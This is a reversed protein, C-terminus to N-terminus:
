PQAIAEEILGLNGFQPAWLRRLNPNSVSEILWQGTVLDHVAIDIVPSGGFNEVFVEERDARTGLGRPGQAVDFRQGNSLGLFWDGTALDHILLDTMGDGTIDRAYVRERAPGRNGFGSIWQEVRFFPFFPGGPSRGGALGVFWNGTVVDHIAVDTRGDGNFDGVFTAERDPRNGFNTAWLEPVFSSGTSRGVFWTGTFRDHVAVDARGDGTFDGGVVEERDLGLNGFHTAWRQIEFGTGTSVGIYWDGTVTDHIAIDDKGDGTFDGVLVREREYGLNGFNMAWRSISFTTGTSLGVWWDGTTRDHLAVDVKGDGDFDGVFTRERSDGLNGFGQAYRQLAFATGTSFGVVWEGSPRDHIIADARGDGDLDLGPGRFRAVIPTFRFTGSSQVNITCQSATGRSACAGGWGLFSAGPSSTATFTVFNEGANPTPIASSCTPPCAFGSSSTVVGAGIRTIGVYGSGSAEATTVPCVLTLVMVLSLWLLSNALISSGSRIRM